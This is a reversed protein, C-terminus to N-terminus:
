CVRKCEGSVCVDVRLGEVCVGVSVERLFEFVSGWCACMYEGAFGCNRGGAARYDRLESTRCGRMAATGCDRLEM